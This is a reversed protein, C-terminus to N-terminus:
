DKKGAKSVQRNQLLEKAASWSNVLKTEFDSRQVKKKKSPPKLMEKQPVLNKSKIM